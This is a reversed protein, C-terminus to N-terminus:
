GTLIGGKAKQVRTPLVIEGRKIKGFVSVNSSVKSGDEVISRQTIISNSGIYCGIGVKSWGGLVTNTGIYSYEGVTVDHGIVAGITVVTYSGVTADCSILAYPYIIVGMGVNSHESILATPHIVSRFNASKTKLVNIAKQKINSDTIAIVFVDNSEPSYTDEVGLIPVNIKSNHLASKNPDLFGKINEKEGLDSLWQYVERGLGSAGVIVINCM